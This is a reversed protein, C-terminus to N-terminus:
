QVTIHNFSTQSGSCCGEHSMLNYSIHETSTLAVKRTILGESTQIILTTAQSVKIDKELPDKKWITKSEQPLHLGDHYSFFFSVCM